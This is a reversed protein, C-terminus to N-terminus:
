EAEGPERRGMGEEYIRRWEPDERRQIGLDGPYPKSHDVEGRFIRLPIGEPFAFCGQHGNDLIGILWYCSICQGSNGGTIIEQVPSAM